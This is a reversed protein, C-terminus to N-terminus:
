PEDRLVMFHMAEGDCEPCRWHQPLRTFPTGPPVQWVPDGATPDYVYWCIRCELRADDRLRSADGLYSGEFTNM